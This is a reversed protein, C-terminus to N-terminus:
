GASISQSGPSGCVVSNFRHRARRAWRWFLRQRYTCASVEARAEGGQGEGFETLPGFCVAVVFDDHAQRPFDAGEVRQRVVGPADLRLVVDDV